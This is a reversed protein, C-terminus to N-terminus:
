LGKALDLIEDINCVQGYIHVPIIAKTRKTINKKVNSISM